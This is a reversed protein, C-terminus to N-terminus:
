RIPPAYQIGGNNWLENLGRPIGLKSNVGVNREYVEGYNGVLRVVDAAWSRSLGIQGGFDGEKGVLRMVEPRKSQLAKDINASTVGLEEADLMAFHVWTVVNLWRPDDQRVAPGLPEKSIVDPLITHEEPKALQLRLAYLQSLDSTLADCQGSDYDKLAQTPSDSVVPQLHMNNDTFFDSLNQITTTGGQVCVKAGDLELASHVQLSRRVIFGQGDYYNVGAFSLGLVTERSMTWTSNRSLVDIQGSSLAEFRAEASLPVYKVRNPDAFVAAALARCFDVDLGSWSGGGDQYSFGPLGTNVGCTVNGRLRVAELTQASGAKPALSLTIVCLLLAAVAGQRGVFARVVM